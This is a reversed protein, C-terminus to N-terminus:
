DRPGGGLIDDAKGGLLTVGQFLPHQEDLNARAYADAESPDETWTLLIVVPEDDGLDAGCFLANASAVIAEVREDVTLFDEAWPHGAEVDLANGEGFYSNWYEEQEPTLGDNWESPWSIDWNQDDSIKSEIFEQVQREARARLYGKLPLLVPWLMITLVVTLKSLAKGFRSYNVFRYDGEVLTFARRVFRFTILAYLFILVRKIYTM